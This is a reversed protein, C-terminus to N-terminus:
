HEGAARDFLEAPNFGVETLVLLTIVVGCTMLLGAKIIQVWTTALMGGFIVYILMFAGVGIVAPTFSIGTLAQILVGGGVMQAILYVFVVALTGFAAAVRAPRERLRFALVDAVTYKGANRMREAMFLLVPLFAVLAAVLGVFGDVGFLFILGAFGLFSSASMYDGAIAFGNQIGTVGRGAAWFDTATAVRKSAWYTIVLTLAVVIAFIALALENLDAALYTM